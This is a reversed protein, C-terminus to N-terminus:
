APRLRAILNLTYNKPQALDSRDDSDSFASGLQSHMGFPLWVDPAILASIGSFGDPTIGIVTYPQGNIQLTSGVFDARGGM